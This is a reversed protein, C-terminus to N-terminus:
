VLTLFKPSKVTMNKKLMLRNIKHAAKRFLRAANIYNEDGERRYLIIFGEYYQLFELDPTSGKYDGKEIAVLRTMAFVLLFKYFEQEGVALYRPLFEKKLLDLNM